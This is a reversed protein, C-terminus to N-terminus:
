ASERGPDPRPQRLPGPPQPRPGVGRRIRWRVPSTLDKWCGVALGYCVLGLGGTLAWWHGGLGGIQNGLLFLLAALGAGAARHVSTSRLADDVALEGATAVPQPRRVMARLSLEVLAAIAVAAVTTTVNRSRTWSVGQSALPALALVALALAREARLMWAPLYDALRRPVLAAARLQRPHPPRRTLEAAVAGLLYGVAWASPAALLRLPFPPLPQAYAVGWWVTAGEGIVFPVVFGLTRLWRGRRLQQSLHHHDDPHLTLNYRAAWQAIAATDPPRAAWRLLAALLAVATTIVLVWGPM